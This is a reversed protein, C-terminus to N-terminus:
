KEVKKEVCPIRARFPRGSAELTLGFGKCTHEHEFFTFQYVITLLIFNNNSWIFFHGFPLVSLRLRNSEAIVPVIAM